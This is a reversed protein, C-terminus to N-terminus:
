RNGQVNAGLEHILENFTQQESPQLHESRLALMIRQAQQREGSIYLLQAMKLRNSPNTPSISLAKGLSGRAAEMDHEHLWLYDTLWSYLLMQVNSPTLLNSQAASFLVEIDKRTLCLMGTRTMEQARFLLTADSPSFITKGLRYALEAVTEAGPSGTTACNLHILGLLSIKFSPALSAAIEYYTRAQSLAIENSRDDNFLKSMFRGAEYNSRASEPHHSAELQTRLGENGFMEARLTTILCYYGAFACCLAIGFTRETGPNRTLYALGGMPLLCIGLIPLYNRHEHAIELPIFTSELSHGILFWAIGFAILPARNKSWWGIGILGVLGAIAIFTTPPSILGKSILIDDHFLGLAEMRPALSLGLYEWLVRPETLLREILTFSRYSYGSLISQVKPLFFCFPLAALSAVTLWLTCRGFLDLGNQSHRHIILEYAVVYGLLLVGTEKSYLSLPWFVSWALAFFLLKRHNQMNGQRALIHTFLAALLFFASLSTMRQVVYLVSTLQIPHIGWIFAVVGALLSATRPTFNPYAGSLIRRAIAFILVINLCHIFLNTTKFAFPDFGTFYHNLAFSLQSIPRGLIGTTGSSLARRIGDTDFASLRVGEVELINSTDDFFFGGHLGPWYVVLIIAIALLPIWVSSQFFSRLSSIDRMPLTDAYRATATLLVFFRVSTLNKDADARFNSARPLGTSRQSLEVM